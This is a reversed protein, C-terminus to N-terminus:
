NKKERTRTTHSPRCFGCGKMMSNLVHELGLLRSSIKNFDLSASPIDLSSPSTASGAEVEYSLWSITVVENGDGLDRM